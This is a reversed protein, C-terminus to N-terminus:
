LLTSRYVCVPEGGRHGYILFRLGYRGSGNRELEILGLNLDTFPNANKKPVGHLMRVRAEIDSGGLVVKQNALISLKAAARTALGVKNTIGSSVFQLLPRTGDSWRIAHACALHIDGSVLALRQEPNERQHRHLARLLRDRDDVHGATSWRDSFDENGPTLVRGAQAAWRPLHVAPVPLVICVVDRDRQRHLFDLLRELPARSYIGADDDGVRRNSRVDLASIALPGFVIEFDFDDAVVDNQTVRSGQYDFFAARAGRASARWASSSHAPDSGWNDVIEHDDVM